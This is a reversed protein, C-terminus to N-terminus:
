STMAKWVRWAIMKMEAELVDQGPTGLVPMVAKAPPQSGWSPM